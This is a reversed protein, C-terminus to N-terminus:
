DDVNQCPYRGANILELRDIVREEQNLRLLFVTVRGEATKPEIIGLNLQFHDRWIQERPNFLPTLKGTVADISGIDSGKFANCDPCSLCLNDSESSGNHKEAIIHDIEFKFFIDEQNLLCYECCNGAREVVERRLKSSIYTM